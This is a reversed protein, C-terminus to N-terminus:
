KSITRTYEEQGNEDYFWGTLTNGTIEVLLFGANLDNEFFTPTGRGQLDTEKAATGSVIFETGCTPELWQRNHDHGCLYVDVKGCVNADFFSKVNGGSVIPIFPIGEYEGANGHQGNSIYTHHGFAIKWTSTAAALESTLWSAQTSDGTYMIQNTNLSFLDLSTTGATETVSYYLDPLTWKMSQATYDVQYQGKFFEYGAGGGGFDHNGLTIYFPFTLDQYPVEFKSQFQSDNVGDVGTDYINDGLYLAFACGGRADCEAKVVQAVQLQTGSGTGGDGMAIFRITEAGGGTTTGGTGGMGGGSTTNGGMGSTTGGAAGQGSSSSSGNNATTTGTDAEADSECGSSVAGVAIPVAASCIFVLSSLVVRRKM